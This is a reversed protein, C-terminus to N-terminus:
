LVVVGPINKKNNAASSEIIGDAMTITYNCYSAIQADHTIVIVTKGEQNLQTLLAMVGQGSASDLAGTPEDALIVAPDNVLARAIAVRQQQGGSLEGPLHHMRDELGVRKLMTKAQQEPHEPLDNSYLFPLMVNELANFRPLLHFSQFVFGFQQNRLKALEDDKLTGTSIGNVKYNGSTPRDLCGLINLMTSKGSGSPGVIAVFGGDAIELSINNLATVSNSGSSYVKSIEDLQLM